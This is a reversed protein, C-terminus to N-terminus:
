SVSLRRYVRDQGRNLLCWWRDRHAEVIAEVDRTISQGYTELTDSTRLEVFEPLNLLGTAVESLTTEPEPLQGGAFHAFHGFWHRPRNLTAIRLKQLKGPGLIHVLPKYGQNTVFEEIPLQGLGAMEASAKWDRLDLKEIRALRMLWALTEGGLAKGHGQLVLETIHPASIGPLHMRTRKLTLARLSDSVLPLTLLACTNGMGAYIHHLKLPQLEPLSAVLAELATTRIGGVVDVDVVSPPVQVKQLVSLDGLMALHLTTLRTLQKLVKDCFEDRVGRRFADYGGGVILRKLGILQTSPFVGTALCELSTLGSLKDIERGLAASIPSQPLALHVL